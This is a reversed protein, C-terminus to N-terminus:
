CLFHNTHSVALQVEGWVAVVFHSFIASSSLQPAAVRWDVGQPPLFSESKRLQGKAKLSVQVGPETAATPDRTGRLAGPVLELGGFPM